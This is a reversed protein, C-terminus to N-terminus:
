GPARRKFKASITTTIGAKAVFVVQGEASFGLQFTVEDLAFDQTVAVARDLLSRMQHVVKNWDQEVEERRRGFRAGLWGPLDAHEEYSGPLLEEEGAFVIVDPDDLWAARNAGSMGPEGSGEKDSM